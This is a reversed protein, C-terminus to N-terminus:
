RKAAGSTYTVNGALAAALSEDTAVPTREASVPRTATSRVQELVRESLGSTAAIDASSVFVLGEPVFKGTAGGPDLVAGLLSASVAIGKRWADLFATPNVAPGNGPHVEFHLHNPTGQADGTHGVFGIVDGAKVRAGDRALPSYASLHAHYFSNGYDDFLWFRYGGISNWGVRDLVGDTIAIIPTGEVAFIDAGQHPIGTSARPAGWTDTYSSEGLVPFLYGNMNGTAGPGTGRVKVDKRPLESEGPRPSGPQITPTTGGAATPAGTPLATPQPDIKPHAVAVIRGSRVSADVRGVSVSTGAPLGAVDKSLRIHLLAGVVRARPGTQADGRPALGVTAQENISITGVDPIVIQQNERVPIPKGDVTLTAGEDWTLKGVARGEDLRASATLTANLLVVRGDLVSIKSASASATAGQADASTKPGNVALGAHAMLERYPSRSTDDGTTRRTPGSEKGQETRRFTEIVSRERYPASGPSIVDVASAAAKATISRRPGDDASRSAQAAIGIAIGLGVVAFAVALVRQTWTVSRGEPPSTWPDDYMYGSPLM